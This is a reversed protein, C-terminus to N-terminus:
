VPVVDKYQNLLTKVLDNMDKQSFAVVQGNGMNQSVEGIRNRAKYREGVLEVTAQEIDSPSYGYTVTGAKGQDAQNFYYSWSGDSEAALYYQGQAIDDKSAAASMVTGDSLVIGGDSCWSGAPYGDVQSTGELDAAAVKTGANPISVPATAQYGGVYTVQVNLACAPFTAGILRITSDDFLYGYSYPDVSKAVATSGIILSSVSVVPRNRLLLMSTGTGDRVEVFQRPVINRSLYSRVFRSAATILRSLKDDSNAPFATATTNLWEKVVPLTTLDGQQAM